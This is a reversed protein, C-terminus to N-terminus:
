GCTLMNAGIVISAFNEVVKTLFQSIIRQLVLSHTLAGAFTPRDSLDVLNVLNDNNYDDDNENDNVNETDNGNGDGDGDENDEDHEFDKQCLHGWGLSARVRRTTNPLM